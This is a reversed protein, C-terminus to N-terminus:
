SVKDEVSKKNIESTMKFTIFLLIMLVVGIALWILWTPFNDKVAAAKKDKYLENHTVELSNIEPLQHQISDTFFKIDYQPALAKPDGSLLQYNKGKELYSVLSQDLQFAEIGELNLASNDDNLIVLEIVKTKGYFFLDQHGASSMSTDALLLREKNQIQYVSIKRKFFRTGALKLHLKNIQFADKFRITIYSVSSSDKQTFAADPLKVFNLAIVKYDHDKYIGAGLIKLPAKNKDNILIKIYRYNISPFRLLQEYKGLDNAGAEELLVNEKIAYWNNLDDSGSLSVTRIVATNRLQLWFRSITLSNRNDIVYVTGTDSKSKYNVVPFVIFDSKGMQPLENGNIYPVFKDGGTTIRVDSLNPNSKAVLYPDIHIKYFGSSDIVPLVSKYKFNSQAFLFQKSILLIILLCVPKLRNKLRMMVMLKMTM